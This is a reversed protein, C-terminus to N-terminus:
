GAVMSEGLGRPVAVGFLIVGRSQGPTPNLARGVFGDGLQGFCGYSPRWSSARLSWSALAFPLASM